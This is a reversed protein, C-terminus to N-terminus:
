GGQQSRTWFYFGILGLLSLEVLGLTIRGATADSLTTNISTGVASGGRVGPVIVGAGGSGNGPALPPVNVMRRGSAAGIGYSAGM